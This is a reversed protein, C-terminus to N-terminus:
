MPCLLAGETTRKFCCPGQLCSGDKHRVTSVRVSECKWKLLVSIAYHYNCIQFINPKRSSYHCFFFVVFLCLIQVLGHIWCHIQLNKVNQGKFNQWTSNPFIYLFILNLLYNWFIHEHRLYCGATLLKPQEELSGLDMELSGCTM